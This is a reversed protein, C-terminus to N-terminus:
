GIPPDAHVTSILRPGPPGAPESRRAVALDIKPPDERQEGLGPVIAPRNQFPLAADLAGLLPRGLSRRENRPMEDLCGPHGEVIKGTAFRIAFQLVFRVASYQTQLSALSVGHLGPLALQPHPHDPAAFPCEDAGDM